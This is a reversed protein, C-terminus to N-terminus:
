GLSRALEADIPFQVLPQLSSLLFFLWIYDFPTM